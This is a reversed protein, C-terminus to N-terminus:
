GSTRVVVTVEADAIDTSCELVIGNVNVVDTMLTLKVVSEIYEDQVYDTLRVEFGMGLTTPLQLTSSSNYAVRQPQTGNPFTFEWILFINESNTQISCNYTIVDNPCDIDGRSVNKEVDM